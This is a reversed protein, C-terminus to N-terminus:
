EADVYLMCNRQTALKGISVLRQSFKSFIQLDDESVGAGCGVAIRTLLDSRKSNDLRFLHANAYVELRSVKDTSNNAFKLSKFLSQVESDTFTIGRETLSNKLDDIDIELQSDFKLIDKMLVQQARSLRTMTDTSILATLKLAFHGEDKGETQAAISELMHDYVGQVFNDDMEALGEVVYNAVGHVNNKELLAIDEV